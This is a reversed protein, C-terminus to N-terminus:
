PKLQGPLSWPEPQCNRSQVSMTRWWQLPPSRPQRQCWLQRKGLFSIRLLNYNLLTQRQGPNLTSGGSRGDHNRWRAAQNRVDVIDVTIVVRHLNGYEIRGADRDRVEGNVATAFPNDPHPVSM